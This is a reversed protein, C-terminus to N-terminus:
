DDKFAGEIVSNYNLTGATANQYNPAQYEFFNDKGTGLATLLSLHLKKSSKKKNKPEEVPISTPLVDGVVRHGGETNDNYFLQKNITEITANLHDYLIHFQFGKYREDYGTVSAPNLSLAHIFAIEATKAENLMKEFVRVLHPNNPFDFYRKLLYAAYEGHLNENRIIFENAKVMEPMTNIVRLWNIINFATSFWMQEIIFVACLLIALPLRKHTWKAVWTLKRHLNAIHGIDNLISDRESPESVFVQLMDGYTQGHVIESEEQAPYFARVEPIMIREKVTELVEDVVGDGFAFFALLKVITDKIPTPLVRFDNLDRKFDLEGPNWHQLQMERLYQIAKEDFEMTSPAYFTYRQRTRDFISSHRTTWWVRLIDIYHHVIQFWQGAYVKLGFIIHALTVM